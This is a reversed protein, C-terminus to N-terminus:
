NGDLMALDGDIVGAMAGAANGGGTRAAEEWADEEVGAMAGVGENGTGCACFFM